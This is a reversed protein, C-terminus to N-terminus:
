KKESLMTNIKEYMRGLIVYDRQNEVAKKLKVLTAVLKIQKFRNLVLLEKSIRHLLAEELYMVKDNYIIHIREMLLPLNEISISRIIALLLASLVILILIELMFGGIIM